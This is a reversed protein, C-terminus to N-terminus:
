EWRGTVAAADHPGPGLLEFRNCGRLIEGAGRGCAFLLDAAALNPVFPGGPQPYVPHEFVQEFVPIGALDFRTWDIPHTTSTSTLHVDGGVNQVLELLREERTGSHPVDSARVIRVDASLYGCFAEFLDLNHDVLRTSRRAYADDILPFVEDFYPTAAYNKELFRLHASRWDYSEAIRTDQLVQRQGTSVVPVSLWEPTGAGTRFLQRAHYERRTFQVSDYAIFVDSAMAKTLLKLWPMFNPQHVSVSTM